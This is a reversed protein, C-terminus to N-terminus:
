LRHRRMDQALVARPYEAQLAQCQAQLQLVRRVPARALRAAAFGRVSPPLLRHSALADHPLPRALAALGSNGLKYIRILQNALRIPKATIIQCTRVSPESYAYARGAKVAIFSGLAASIAPAGRAYIALCVRPAVVPDPFDALALVVIYSAGLLGVHAFSQPAAVVISERALQEPFPKRAPRKREFSKPASREAVLEDATADTEADDLQMELQDIFREKRESRAGFLTRRLKEIELRLRAILTDASSV